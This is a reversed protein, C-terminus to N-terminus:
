ADDEDLSEIWNPDTIKSPIDHLERLLDHMMATIGQIMSHPDKCALLKRHYALPAGLMKQRM